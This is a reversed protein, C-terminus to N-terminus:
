IFFSAAIRFLLAILLAPTSLRIMNAETMDAAGAGAWVSELVTRTCSKLANSSSQLGAADCGGAGSEGNHAL